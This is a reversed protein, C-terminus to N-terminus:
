NLKVDFEKQCDYKFISLEILLRYIKLCETPMIKIFTFIAISKEYSYILIIDWIYKTQRSTFLELLKRQDFLLINM